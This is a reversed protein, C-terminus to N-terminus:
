KSTTNLKGYFEKDVFNEVTQKITHIESYPIILLPISNRQAYEVKINDRVKAEAHQKDTNGFYVRDYHQQGHFEILGTKGNIFVAFDFPLKKKDICDDFTYQPEFEIQLKKLVTEIEAEGRSIKCRPCGQGQIHNNPAQKFDGHFPCTIVVKTKRDTYDVKDYQFKEGHFQKAEKIFENTTKKKQGSCSSCGQGQLHNNPTQEFDGHIPCVIVVKVKSNIYKVKSYNYKSPHINKAQEIFEEKTTKHTGGCIDCGKGNLHNKPSQEFDGHKKCTIIVKTKNNIYKVNEYSYNDGHVTIADQIFDETHKKKKGSCSPCGQEQNLHGDPAQEFDGHIPCTILVKTRNNVYKVKEYNYKDGHIQKAREFFDITTTKKVKEIYEIKIRKGCKGCGQKLGIHNGPTQEFDGHINCTIVVKTKNNIYNVKDYSYKSGHVKRAAQIFEESTKKKKGSCIPCGSGKLHTYPKQLFEYNHLKCVIPVTKESYVYKIKSYDYKDGHINIAKEIFDFPTLRKM